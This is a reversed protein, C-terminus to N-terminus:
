DCDDDDMNIKSEARFLADIGSGHQESDKGFIGVQIFMVRITPLGSIGLLVCIFEYKV